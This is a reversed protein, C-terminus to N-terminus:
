ARSRRARAKPSPPAEWVWRGPGGSLRFGGHTRLDHHHSCLRAINELSAPGGQIFDLGWHDLELGQAVDCGPIVCTRDREVVARRLATPISRGLHCITTVDIGNTIVLHFLADGMLGRATDVSVPGVGPIECIEGTGVTGRRLTELDVRLTVLAKPGPGRCSEREAGPDAARRPSGATPLPSVIGRGTVLAVLADATYADRADFVGDRRAQEFRRSSEKSLTAALTAGAEPTLTADLRFSGDADTWTRCRRAKHLAAARRAAEEASRGEARARLCRDRLARWSDHEAGNVLDERRAPNMETAGAVLSAGPRSVRGGRYAADLDPQHALAAGLELDDIAQGIPQRTVSALWDAASKHGSQEPRNSEAVRAAALTKGAGCLREARCFWSVLEAADDADYRGAEFDSVFSAIVEIAGALAKTGVVSATKGTGAQATEGSARPVLDPGTSSARRQTM